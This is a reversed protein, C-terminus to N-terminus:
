GWRSFVAISAALCFMAVLPQFGALAGLHVALSLVLGCAACGLLPLFLIQTTRTTMACVATRANVDGVPANDLEAMSKEARVNRVQEQDREPSRLNSTPM